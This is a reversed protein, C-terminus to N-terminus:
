GNMDLDKEDQHQGNAAGNGGDDELIRRAKSWLEAEMGRDVRGGRSNLSGVDLKGLSGENISIDEKEEKEQGAGGVGFRRRQEEDTLGKKEDKKAAEKPIIAAEELGRIHRDLQVEVAQLTRLFTGTSEEFAERKEANSSATSSEKSAALTQLALGASYLLSTIKKDVDNLQQIREAKTFPIFEEDSAM